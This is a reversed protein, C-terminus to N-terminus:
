RGRSARDAQPYIWRSRYAILECSIDSISINKSHFSQLLYRVGAFTHNVSGRQVPVGHIAKRLYDEYTHTFKGCDHILGALFAAMGLGICALADEAYEATHRCHEAATQIHEKNRNIEDVRIHGPYEYM